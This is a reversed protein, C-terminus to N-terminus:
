NHDHDPPVLNLAATKECNAASEINAMAVTPAPAAAKMEAVERAAAEPALNRAMEPALVGAPAQMRLKETMEAAPTQMSVNEEKKPTKSRRAMDM